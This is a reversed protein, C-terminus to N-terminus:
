KNWADARALSDLPPLRNERLLTCCNKSFCFNRSHFSVMLLVSVFFGSWAYAREKKTRNYATLVECLFGHGEAKEFCRKRQSHQQATMRWRLAVSTIVTKGLAGVLNIMNQTVVPIVITRVASEADGKPQFGPDLINQYFKVSYREKTQQVVSVDSLSWVDRTFRCLMVYRSLKDRIPQLELYM